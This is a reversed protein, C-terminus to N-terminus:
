PVSTLGPISGCYDIGRHGSVYGPLLIGTTPDHQDGDTITYTPGNTTTCPGIASNTIVYAGGSPDPPVNKLYVGGNAAQLAAVNAPYQGSNDVAYEEMATALQRLNGECSYTQSEARAHLFNPILIAALIAIIAIVILLEVLTFGHNSNKHM